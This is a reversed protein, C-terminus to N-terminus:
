KEIQIMPFYRIASETFVHTADVNTSPKLKSNIVLPAQLTPVTGSGLMVSNNGRHSQTMPKQIEHWKQKDQFISIMTSWNNTWLSLHLVGM